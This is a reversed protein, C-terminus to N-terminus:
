GRNRAGLVMLAKRATEATKRVPGVMGCLVCRATCGGDAPEVLVFGNHACGEVEVPRGVFRDWAEKMEDDDPNLRLYSGMAEVLAPYVEDGPHRDRLL